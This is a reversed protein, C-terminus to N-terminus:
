NNKDEILSKERKREVREWGVLQKSINETLEALSAYQSIKMEKMDKVVRIQIKVKVIKRRCSSIYALKKQSSNAQYILQLIDIIEKKLEEGLTYRLDRRWHQSIQFTRLLLYYVAKFVPLENYNAM